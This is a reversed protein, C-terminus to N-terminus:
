RSSEVRNRGKNKAAYLARDARKLVADFSQDTPRPQALGISVTFHIVVGKDLVVQSAAVRERLREALLRAEAFTIQDLCIAFEEGGIRGILDSKRVEKKCIEAFRRLAQDGGAHGHTDNIDKFFDLDLMMVAWPLGQAQYRRFNDEAQEFFSRRNYVRTLMDVHYLKEMERRNQYEVTIDQKIGIFKFLHGDDDFLPAIVAQEWYLQGNKKRNQFVGQWDRGARITEWLDRYDIGAEQNYKLLRPNQGIVEERTYGTVKLFAQNVYCITGDPETIVISNPSQEVAKQLVKVKKEAEIRDTIDFSMGIIGLIEGDEDRFPVKSTNVWHLGDNTEWKEVINLRPQGTAMVTLDDRYYADAVQQPYFENVSRGVLEAKSLGYADAVVQNVRVFHNYRDKYFVLGPMHDLMAEFQGAQDKYAEKRAKLQDHRKKEATIDILIGQVGMQGDDADGRGKELIWRISGDAHSIRYEIAYPIKENRCFEMAQRRKSRHQPDILDDWSRKEIVFDARSYGTLAEIEASIETMLGDAASGQYYVMNLEQLLAELM